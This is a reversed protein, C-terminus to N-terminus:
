KLNFKILSHMTPFKVEIRGNGTPVDVACLASYDVLAIFLIFLILWEKKLFFM